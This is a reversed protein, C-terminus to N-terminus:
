ARLGYESSGVGGAAKNPEIAENTLKHVTEHIAYSPSEKANPSEKLTREKAWDRREHENEDQVTPLVYTSSIREQRASALLESLAKANKRITDMEKLREEADTQLKVAADHQVAAKTFNTDFGSDRRPSSMIKSFDPINERIINMEKERETETEKEEEDHEDKFDDQAVPETDSVPVSHLSSLFASVAIVGVGSLIGVIVLTLM